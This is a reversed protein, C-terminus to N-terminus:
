HAASRTDRLWFLTALKLIIPAGAYLWLLGQLSDASQQEWGFYGLAPLALGVALALALKTLMGWVAFLLGSMTGNQSSLDQAIDAQISAPLAVDAAVSLGSILCILAFGWLNGPELSFVWIFSLCASIMSIRWASYKGLKKSLCVWLPLALIGSLFFGLLLLGMYQSLQLFHEVFLLFLTAPLANALSNLFYAPLLKRSSRDAWILRWAQMNLASQRRPLPARKILRLRWVLLALSLSLSVGILPYLLSFLQRYDQSNDLLFPLILVTIVGIVAFGERSATYYTKVHAQRSVEASLAQYPIMILTWALYVWMAWILLHSASAQTPLLLQWLGILLLAWGLLMLLYRGRRGSYDCLLGVLPDSIVDSVRALLLMSGVIALELGRQHYYTPLYVYLPIGLMALPWSALGYILPQSFASRNKM